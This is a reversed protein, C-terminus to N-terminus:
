RAYPDDPDVPQVPGTLSSDAAGGGGDDGRPAPGDHQTPSPGPQTPTGVTVVSPPDPTPRVVVEGTVPREGPERVVWRYAGAALDDIALTRTTAKATRITWLRAEGAGSQLSVQVRVRVARSTTVRLRLGGAYPSAVVDRIAPLRELRTGDVVAQVVPAVPDDLPAHTPLQQRTGTAVPPPDDDGSAEVILGGALVLGLAVYAAGVAPKNRRVHLARLQRRAHRSIPIARSGAPAVLSVVPFTDEVDSVSGDTHIVLRKEEAGCRLNARVSRGLPQAVQRAAAHVGLHKAFTTDPLGASGRDVVVGDVTIAEDSIEIEVVPHAPVLTEDVENVGM